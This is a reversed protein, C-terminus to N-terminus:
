KADLVFRHLLTNVSGSEEFTLWQLVLPSAGKNHNGVPFITSSNLSSILRSKFKNQFLIAFLITSKLTSNVWLLYSTRVVPRTDLCHISPHINPHVYPHVDLLDAEIKRPTPLLLVPEGRLACHSHSKQRLRRPPHNDQTSPRRCQKRRPDGQRM